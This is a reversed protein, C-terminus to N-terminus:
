VAEAILSDIMRHGEVTPHIGDSCIYNKYNHSLLFPSRIDILEAGYKEALTEATRNYYEHWRYLMSADGLWSIINDYSLDRSIWQVYKESDLPVLNCLKVKAGMESAYSIISGYIKAFKDAPTNPSFDGSPDASIDAWHFDCDNGGYEFIVTTDEAPTTLKKKVLAEGMEVTAGMRSSNIVEFGREKLCNFRESFVKHRGEEASYYVGRMISDGFILLRKM